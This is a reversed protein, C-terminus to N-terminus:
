CSSRGGGRWEEEDVDAKKVGRRGWMCEKVVGEKRGIENGGRWRESRSGEDEDIM